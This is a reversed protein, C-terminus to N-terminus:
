YETTQTIHVPTDVGDRMSFLKYDLHPAYIPTERLEILRELLKDAAYVTAARLEVEEQSGAEIMNRSDILESLYNSYDLVGIGRLVNPLNYDVFVTFCDQDQIQFTSQNQFRGYAMGAALQARKWFLVEISTGDNLTVVSSDRFSPFHSVLRDIIGDGDAYLRPESAEVLNSFRGDYQTTLREGVQTLIQHREEIMPVEVDTSSEFLQKVDSLTLERLTNGHLIAPNEDYERKLCAWMAFAGSWETGAYSTAFKQGTKYDRFQFNIANGVFLFDIVDSATVSATETTPFVPARWDPLPFEESALDQALEDIAEDDINLFELESVVIEVSKRVPTSPLSYCRSTDM